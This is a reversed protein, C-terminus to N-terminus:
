QTKNSPLGDFSIVELDVSTLKFNRKTAVVTSLHDKYRKDTTSASKIQRSIHQKKIKLLTLFFLKIKEFIMM